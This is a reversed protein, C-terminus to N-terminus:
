GVECRAVNLDGVAVDCEQVVGEGAFQLAATGENLDEVRGGGVVLGAL